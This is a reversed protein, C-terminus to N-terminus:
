DARAALGSSALPRPLRVLFACGRGRPSSARIQGGHLEAIGQAISLGIDRRDDSKGSSGVFRDFMTSLMQASVGAGEDQVVVECAGPRTTARVTVEGGKESARICNGLIHSFMGALLDADGPVVPSQDDAALETRVVVGRRAASANCATVADMLVENVECTRGEPVAMGGRVRSFQVFSDIIGGLRRVEQKVSRVFQRGDEPLAEVDLTEAETLLVAIPTKMEHSVNSILRDQACLSERLKERTIEIQQQFEALEKPMPGIQAEKRIADPGFSTAVANLQRLSRLVSGSILWAATWTAVLGLLITLLLVSATFSMTDEFESDNAVVALTGTGPLNKLLVRARVDGTAQDSIEALTLREIRIQGDAWGSGGALVDLRPLGSGVSAVALGASDFLTVGQTERNTTATAERVIEALRGSDVRGGSQILSAAIVEARAQLRANAKVEVAHRFYLFMVIGVLAQILLSVLSTWLTVRWRLSLGEKSASHNAVKSM